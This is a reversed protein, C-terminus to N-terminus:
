GATSAGLLAETGVVRGVMGEVAVGNAAGGDMVAGCGTVFLKM